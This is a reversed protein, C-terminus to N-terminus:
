IKLTSNLIYRIFMNYFVCECIYKYIKQLKSFRRVLCRLLLLLLLFLAIGLAIVFMIGLNRILNDSETSEEIEHLIHEDSELNRKRIVNNTCTQCDTGTLFDIVEDKPLFEMLAIMKVFKLFSASNNSYSLQWESMFVTFQLLNIMQWVYKLGYSM